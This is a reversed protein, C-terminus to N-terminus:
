KGFVKGLVSKMGGDMRSLAEKGANKDPAVERAVVARQKFTRRIDDDQVDEGRKRKKEEMGKYMKSREVNQIYTKNERQSQAVENRLRQQRAQQEYAMQETLHNWKFKPLYKINWMDHYYRDSRKGGEFKMLWIMISFLVVKGIQRMNLFEALAKARKKDKFEVWGETYNVRRDKGYKKRRATIKPDEPSCFLRGIEAYKSLLSRLRRPKMFPPIRSLYCVGTKKQDKEFKELEEPTLKNLKKKKSTRPKNDEADQEVDSEDEVDEANDLDAEDNSEDNDIEASGEEDSDFDSEDTESEENVSKKSRLRSATFRRDEEEEEQISQDDSEEDEFGFLDKKKEEDNIAM